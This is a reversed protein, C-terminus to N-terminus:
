FLSEQTRSSQKPQILAKSFDAISKGPIPREIIPTDPMLKWVFGSRGSKLMKREGPRYILKYKDNLDSLRKWIKDPKCKLFKAIDESTGKEIVSLAWLIDNYTKKVESDKLSRFADISTQAKPKTAM